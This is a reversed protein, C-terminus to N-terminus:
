LTKELGDLAKRAKDIKKQAKARQKEDLEMLPATSRWVERLDEMADLVSFTLEVRRNNRNKINGDM